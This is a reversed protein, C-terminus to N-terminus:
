KGKLIKAPFLNTASWLSVAGGAFTAKLPIFATVEAEFIRFQSADQNPKGVHM